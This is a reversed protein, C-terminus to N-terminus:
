SASAGSSCAPKTKEPINHLSDAAETGAEKLMSSIDKPTAIKTIPMSKLRAVLNDAHRGIESRLTAANNLVTKADDKNKLLGKEVLDEIAKAGNVVAQKVGGAKIMSKTILPTMKEGAIALADAPVKAVKYALMADKGIAAPLLMSAGFEGVKGATEYNDKSELMKDTSARSQTEEQSQQFPKFGNGSFGNILRGATQNAFGQGFRSASVVDGVAGKTFGSAFSAVKDGTSMPPAPPQVPLPPLSFQAVPPMGNPQQPDQRPAAKSGIPPLTFQVVQPAAM